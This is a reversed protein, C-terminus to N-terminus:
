LRHPLTQTTIHHELAQTTHDFHTHQINAINKKTDGWVHEIPNHDPANPPMPILHVRHLIGDKALQARLEKSKHFAANDWVITIQKGPHNTLFTNLAALIECTNQWALRFLECQGTRQNLLGLYSQAQVQRDVRLITPKGVPLWARRIIAEQDLRVEDAAFVEWAPDALLPAVETHIEAMRAEVAADDRRRDLTDPYKLDLGAMRLLYHYSTHSEYVVVFQTSLHRKLKPVDWFGAPLGHAEPTLALDRRVQARQTVTLKSANVNGTHGTVVSGMRTKKWQRMWTLVTSQERDVIRAITQGPIGQSAMLIATAKKRVLILDSHDTHDHLLQEETPSVVISEM